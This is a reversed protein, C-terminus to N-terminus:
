CAPNGIIDALMTKSTSSVMPNGLEWTSVEKVTTVSRYIGVKHNYGNFFKGGKGKAPISDMQTRKMIYLHTCITWPNSQFASIQITNHLYRNYSCLQSISQSCFHFHVCCISARLEVSIERPINQKMSLDNTKKRLCM